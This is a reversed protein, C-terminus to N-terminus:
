AMRIILVLWDGEWGERGKIGGEGGEKEGGEWGERVGGKEGGGEEMGGEGGEERGTRGEEREDRGRKWAEKGKMGEEKEEMGREGTEEKERELHIRVRHPHQSNSYWNLLQQLVRSAGPGDLIRYFETSSRLDSIKEWLRQQLWSPLLRVTRRRTVQM